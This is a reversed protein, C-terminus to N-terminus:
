DFCHFVNFISYFAIVVICFPYIIFKVDFLLKKAFLVCKQTFCQWAAIPYHENGNPAVHVPITTFILRMVLQSSAISIVFYEGVINNQLKPWLM